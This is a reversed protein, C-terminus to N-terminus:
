AQCLNLEWALAMCMASREARKLCKVIARENYQNAKKCRACMCIRESAKEKASKVLREFHRGFGNVKLTTQFEQEKELQRRHFIAVEVCTAKVVRKTEALMNEEGPRTAHDWLKTITRVFELRVHPREALSELMAKALYHLIIECAAHAKAACAFILADSLTVLRRQAIQVSLQTPDSLLSSDPRRLYIAFLLAELAEM